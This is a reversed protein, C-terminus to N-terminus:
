WVPVQAAQPAMRQSQASTSLRSLHTIEEPDTTVSTILFRKGHALQTLSQPALPSPAVSSAPTGSVELGAATRPRLCCRHLM